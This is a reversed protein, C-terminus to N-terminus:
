SILVDISDKSTSIVRPHKKISDNWHPTTDPRRRRQMAVFDTYVIHARGLFVTARDGHTWKIADRQSILGSISISRRQSWELYLRSILLFSPLFFLQLFSLFSKCLLSDLLGGLLQDLCHDLSMFLCQLLCLEVILDGEAFCPVAVPVDVKLDLAVVRIGKVLDKGLVDLM